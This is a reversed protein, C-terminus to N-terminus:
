KWQVEEAKVPYKIGSGTDKLIVRGEQDKGRFQLSKMEGNYKVLTRIKPFKGEDCPSLRPIRVCPELPRRCGACNEPATDWMGCSPDVLIEFIRPRHLSARPQSQALTDLRQHSRIWFFPASM